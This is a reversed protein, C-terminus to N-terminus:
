SGEGVRRDRQIALLERASFSAITNTVAETRRHPPNPVATKSFRSVIVMADANAQAALAASIDQYVEQIGATIGATWTDVAIDGETLPSVFNGGRRPAAGSTGTFKVWVCLSPSLSPSRVGATNYEVDTQQGFEDGLDVCHVKDFLYQDSLIATVMNDRWINGIVLGTAALHAATWPLVTNRVYIDNLIAQGQGGVGVMQFQATDPVVQFAM